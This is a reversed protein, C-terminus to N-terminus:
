SCASGKQRSARVVGMLRRVIIPALGLSMEDALLFTPTAVLAQALALMQQQGGSLSGASREALKSLEPFVAYAESSRRGCGPLRSSAAAVELNERM